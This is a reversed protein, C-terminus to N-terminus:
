KATSPTTLPLQFTPLAGPDNPLFLFTTNNSKSLDQMTTIYLYQLYLPNLTSHIISQAKALGQAQVVAQDAKQKVSQLVFSQQLAEQSAQVKANVATQIGAPLTMDRIQLSNVEIHFKALNHEIQTQAAAQFAARDDTALDVADYSTAADRIASRITPRVVQNVYDGGIKVYVDRVSGQTLQFLVTSDVTVSVQDKTNVPVTDNGAVAGEQSSGSMTYNQLRVNVDHVTTWPAVFHVGSGLGAGAKGFTVPIGVEGPKVITFSAILLIFWGLLGPILSWPRINYTDSGDKFKGVVVMVLAILWLVAVLFVILM